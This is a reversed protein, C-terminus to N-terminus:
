RQYMEKVRKLDEAYAISFTGKEDEKKAIESEVQAIRNELSSIRALRDKGIVDGPREIDALASEQQRKQFQLRKITGEQTEILSVISSIKADRARIVDSPAGYLRMLNQDAIERERKERAINEEAALSRDRERIERDSLARPVVELVRGDLSLIAYGNKVYRAPVYSDLVTVSDENKYRYLEAAVTNFYVTAGLWFTLLLYRLWPKM